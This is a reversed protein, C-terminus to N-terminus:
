RMKKKSITPSHSQLFEKGNPKVVDWPPNAIVADFGGRAMVEAFEFAWHFPKLGTIDELTVARKRAKGEKGKEADWTAEEYRIGLDHFQKHLLPNLTEYARTRQEEISKRLAALEKIGKGVNTRYSVVERQYEEVVQQYTKEGVGLLPAQGTIKAVPKNVLGSTQTREKAREQAIRSERQAQYETEDVKLLGVLSNGALINFDINPLPELDDLTNASSVLTLFLRLKAIEAAEEMLDVGYLNETIIKKKLNYNASEHRGRLEARWKNLNADNFSDIRGMLSTYIDLMTKLAAVLFAGSGCAPDLLSIQKLGDDGTLLARVLDVDANAIADNLNDNQKGANPRRERIKDLVLKRVTQECLYETIEPRTYYAGFGKQNIYKEFIHGLVDPDLGRDRVHEQDDSLYWDYSGFLNLILDFAYDPIAINPYKLEIGHKLFLGGNLYPIQGVLDSTAESRDEEPMAFAEFFLAALFESYYRNTGRDKSAAMHTQLYKSDGTHQADQRGLFGKGQLFYVFMLRNLIVSAYWARDREDSIGQIQSAFDERVGKFDNYFKKVVGETDLSRSLRQAAETVSIEGDENLEALDVFLGSLKNVFLDDAQGKTYTHTRPQAKRKNGEGLERKVWYWHSQTRNQNVFVLVHERVTKLLEDSLKHRVAELPLATPDQGGMVEIVQVGGLQAITKLIFTDDGLTVTQSGRARNWGLTNMVEAFEFNRLHQRLIKLESVSLTATSM